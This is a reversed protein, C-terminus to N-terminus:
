NFADGIKRFRPARLDNILDDSGDGRHVSRTQEIAGGIEVVVPGDDGKRPRRKCHFFSREAGNTGSSLQDVEVIVLALMWADARRINNGKDRQGIRAHFFAHRDGSSQTLANAALEANRDIEIFRRGRTGLPRIEFIDALTL